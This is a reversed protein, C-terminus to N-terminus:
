RFVLENVSLVANMVSMVLGGVGLGILITLLPTILAVMREVSRGVKQEHIRAAHLLMRELQGTEEGVTVLRQVLAPLVAAAALPRALNSGRRVQEVVEGLRQAMFANRVLGSAISLAGVLPVGSRILTALARAFRAAEVEAVLPGAVPLGLLLRALALRVRPDRALAAGSLAVVTAGTLLLPWQEAIVWRLGLLVRVTAPPQQGADAFIGALSPVLLVLIAAVAVVAMAMLVLPYVLASAIRGRIEGTRELHQALEDLVPGLTGAAEGARLMGLYFSPYAGSQASMADSLSAGELVAKLVRDLVTRARGAPQQLAVLRLAEDLPLDAGILTALEHTTQAIAGHSLASGGLLDRRWWATGAEGSAAMAEFPHLGRCRLRELAEALTKAEVDGRCHRGDGDLAQYSFMPM